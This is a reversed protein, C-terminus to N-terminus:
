ILLKYFERKLWCCCSQRHINFTM